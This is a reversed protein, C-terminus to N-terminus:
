AQDPGNAEKYEKRILECNDGVVNYAQAILQRQKCFMKWKAVVEKQKSEVEESEPDHDIFFEYFNNVLRAHMNKADAQIREQIRRQARTMTKTQAPAEDASLEVDKNVNM